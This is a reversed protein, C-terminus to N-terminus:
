SVEKKKVLRLAALQFTSAECMYSHSHFITAAYPAQKSNSIVQQNITIMQLKQSNTEFM